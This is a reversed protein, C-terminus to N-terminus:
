HSDYIIMLKKATNKSTFQQIHSELGSNLTNKFLDQEIMKQLNFSLEEKNYPDITLGYPGLAEPLSSINSTIVPTKCFLSEIIPIGFGEYFSPLCLFKANEYYVKLSKKNVSGLFFLDKLVDLRKAESKVWDVYKKQGNGVVVLPLRNESPIMAMAYIIGILNKRKNITGVYIFYENPVDSIAQSITSKEQFITDCSQYLVSIKQEPIDLYNIIDSKTAQSIAIIHDANKCAFETKNKYIKRDILSFDKPYTLYFLDHITVIKYAKIGSSSYPIENSLGHYIKPNVQNVASSIFFSRWISSFAPKPDILKFDSFEFKYENDSINPAFLTYDNEPFQNKLNRVLTRSYNGLGTNNNFLRKADFGIHM